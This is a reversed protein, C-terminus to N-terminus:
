WEGTGVGGTNTYGTGEEWKQITIEEFTIPEDSNLEPVWQHHKGAEINLPVLTAKYFKRQYDKMRDSLPLAIFQEQTLTSNGTATKYSELEGDEYIKMREIKPLANFTEETIENNGKATKYESYTYYSAQRGLLYLTTNGSIDHLNIPAMMMYGMIYGKAGNTRWYQSIEKEYDTGTAHKNNCTMDIAPHFGLSVVHSTKTPTLKKTMINMRADLVFDANGNYVQLSDYFVNESALSPCTMYFRIISGMHSYKFHVHNGSTAVADSALYAYNSLHAAARKESELFEDDDYSFYYGMQENTKQVQGRYSMPVSEYTIEGTELTEATYPFYSYYKTGGTITTLGGDKPMFVGTVSTTQITLESEPDLKFDMQTNTNGEAFIGIHDVKADYDVDGAEPKTWTFKLKNNVRDYYLQSKASIRDADADAEGAGEEFEAVNAMTGTVAGLEDLPDTTVTTTTAFDEDSCSSFAVTLTLALSLPLLINAFEKKM